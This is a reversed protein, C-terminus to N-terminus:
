KILIKIHYTRGEAVRMLKSADVKSLAIHAIGLSCHGPMTTFEAVGKTNVKKWTSGGDDDNIGLSTGIVPRGFRDVAEAVIRAAKVLGFDAHTIPGSTTNFSEYSYPRRWRGDPGKAEPIWELTGDDRVGMAKSDQM